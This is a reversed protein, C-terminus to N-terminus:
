VLGSNLTMTTYISRHKEVSAARQLMEDWVQTGSYLPNVAVVVKHTAFESGCLSTRQKVWNLFVRPRRGIRQVLLSM